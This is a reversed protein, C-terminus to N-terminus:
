RDNLFIRWGPKIWQTFMPRKTNVPYFDDGGATTRRYDPQRLSGALRRGPHTQPWGPQTTAWRRLHASDKSRNEDIANRLVPFKNAQHGSRGRLRLLYRRWITLDRFVRNYGGGSRDFGDREIHAYHDPNEIVKNDQMWARAARRRYYSKPIPSPNGTRQVPGYKAM